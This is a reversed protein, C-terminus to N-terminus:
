IREMKCPNKKANQHTNQVWAEGMAGGGSLFRTAVHRDHVLDLRRLVSEGFLHGGHLRQQGGLHTM